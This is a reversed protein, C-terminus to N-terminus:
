PRAKTFAKDAQDKFWHFIAESRNAFSESIRENMGLLTAARAMSAAYVLLYNGADLIAVVSRLKNRGVAPIIGYTLSTLNEQTFIMTGPVVYYDYQYINDGFTLDKQRAYITLEAPCRTYVPDPIPKKTGPGDIVTSTEYFTRMRGRSASYYELGALTSLSIIENYIRIEEEASWVTKEAQPPKQYLHLTEVLVNPNIEQRLADIVGSLIDNRPILRPEINKFQALVPKEGSLLARAQLSGALDELDFGFLDLGPCFVLSVALLLRLFFVRKMGSFGRQPSFTLLYHFKGNLELM